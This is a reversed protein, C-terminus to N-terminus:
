QLQEGPARPPRVVLEIEFEVNGFPSASGTQSSGAPPAAPAAAPATIQSLIVVSSFAGSEVLRQEYRIVADNNLARGAIRLRDDRQAIATLRVLLPDYNALAAAVRPWDIGVPADFEQLAALAAENTAIAANLREVEESPREAEAVALEVQELERQLRASDSRIWGSLIVLPILAIGLGLVILWLVVVTRTARLRAADADNPPVNLDLINRPGAAM